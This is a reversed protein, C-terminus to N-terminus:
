TLRKLDEQLKENLYEDINKAKVKRLVQDVLDKRLPLTVRLTTKTEAMTKM